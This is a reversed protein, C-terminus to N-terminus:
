SKVPVLLRLRDYVTYRQDPCTRRQSEPSYSHLRSNTFGPQCPMRQGQYWVEGEGLLPLALHALPAPDGSAGLSGQEYVVPLIDLNYFDILRQITILQVGSHGYALSQVKLLLMLKVIDQPVERGMGCAHSLLLNRQLTSLEDAAIVTNCLSGFGTNIGYVVRDPDAMKEDLYAKCAIVRQTADASLLITLKNGTIHRLDALTLRRNIHFSEM